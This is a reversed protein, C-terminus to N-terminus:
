DGAHQARQRLRGRYHLARRALHRLDCLIAMELGIAAGRLDGGRHGVQGGDGRGGFLEGGAGALDAAAHGIGRVGGLGGDAMGVDGARPHFRQQFRGVPDDGHDVQDGANGSAGVQQREVGGDLGRAGALRSPPKGHNGALDLQQGGLGAAGGGRDGGLHLANAPHDALGGMGGARHQARDAPNFADGARNGHRNVLLAAGGALDCGPDAIDGALRVLDAAGHCLERQIRRAAAGDAGLHFGGGVRDAGHGGRQAGLDVLEEGGHQVGLAVAADEVAQRTVAERNAQGGAAHGM